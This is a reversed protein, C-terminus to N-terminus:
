ERIVQTNAWKELQKFLAEEDNWILTQQVLEDLYTSEVSRVQQMLVIPKKLTLAAGVEILMGESRHPSTMLVLVKDSQRIEEIASEIFQKPTTLIDCRPDFLDCYAEVGQKAFLDVIKKMRTRVIAHDENTYAHSLFIRM